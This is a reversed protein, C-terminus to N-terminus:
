LGHIEAYLNKFIEFPIPENRKRHIMSHCNSCLPVLDKKPNIIYEKRIQSLPIIHHVEIFEKGLIGYHEEFDFGCVACKYGHAALCALRNGRKREFVTSHSDKIKGETFDPDEENKRKYELSRPDFESNLFNAYQKLSNSLIFGIKKDELNFLANQKIYYIITKIYTM